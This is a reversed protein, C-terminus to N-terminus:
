VAASGPEADVHARFCGLDAPRGSRPARQPIAAMQGQYRQYLARRRERQESSIVIGLQDDYRHDGVSTAYLPALKLFEEFYDELMVRMQQSATTSPQSNSQRPPLRTDATCGLAMHVLLLFWPRLKVM